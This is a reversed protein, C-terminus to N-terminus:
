QDPMKAAAPLPPRAPHTLSPPPPFAVQQL